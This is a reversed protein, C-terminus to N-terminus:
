KKFRLGASSVDFDHFDSAHCVYCRLRNALSATDAQLSNKRPARQNLFAFSPRHGWVPLVLSCDCLRMTGCRHWISLLMHKARM